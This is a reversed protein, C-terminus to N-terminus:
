ILNYLLSLMGAFFLVLIEDIEMGIIVSYTFFAGAIVPLLLIYKKVLNVVLSEKLAKNKDHAASFRNAVMSYGFDFYISIITIFVIYSSFTGFEEETLLNPTILIYLVQVILTAGRLLTYRKSRSELSQM